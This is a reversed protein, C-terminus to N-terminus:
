PFTVTGTCSATWANAAIKTLNCAAYQATLSVSTAGNITAGGVAGSIVLANTAHTRIVNFSTGVEAQAWSSDSIYYTMVGTASTNILRTTGDLTPLFGLNFTGTTAPFREYNTIHNGNEVATGAAATIVNGGLFAKTGTTAGDIALTNGGGTISISNREIFLMPAGSDTGANVYRIPALNDVSYDILNDQVDLRQAYSSGILAYKKTVGLYSNSLKNKRFTLAALNDAANPVINASTLKANQMSVVGQWGQIAIPATNWESNDFNIIANTQLGGFFSVGYNPANNIKGHWRISTFVQLFGIYQTGPAARGGGTASLHRNASAGNIATGDFTVSEDVVLRQDEATVADFSTVKIASIDVGEFRTGGGVVVNRVDHADIGGSVGRFLSRNIRITNAMTGNGGRNIMSYNGVDATLDRSTDFTVGDIDLLDFAATAIGVGANYLNRFTMDKLYLRDSATQPTWLVLPGRMNVSVVCDTGTVSFGNLISTGTKIEADASNPSVVWAGADGQLVVNPKSINVYLGSTALMYTARSPFYITGGTAPLADHAAQIAATADVAVQSASAFDLVSVFDLGKDQLTRTVAGVGSQAFGVLAAGSPLALEAKTAGQHVTWYGAALDTAFTGSTHAVQAVYVVGSQIALDNVAYVHATVWNGTLPYNLVTGALGLATRATAATGDTGLLAANHDHWQTLKTKFQAQTVTAGTLEAANPLPTAAFGPASQFAVMFALLLRLFILRALKEM